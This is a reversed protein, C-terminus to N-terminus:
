RETARVLAEPLDWTYRCNPASGGGPDGKMVTGRHRGGLSEYFRRASANAEMVWLYVGSGAYHELFWRAAGRMLALGVGRRRHGVDVHLNDIYSGWDADEDGFACIFGVLRDANLALYTFRDAQSGRMRERWVALRDSVATRDLFEDPMMGRYTRQWSAAHLLAISEADSKVALRFEM